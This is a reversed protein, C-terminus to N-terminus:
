GSVCSPNAAGPTGLDSSYADVAPCWATGLDNATADQQLPDLSLSLGASLAFGQNAAYAVADITLGDCQLSLDDAENSLSFVAVLDPAFGPSASRAVTRYGGPEIVFSTGIARAADGGDGILCGMLDLSEPGPNFLEFWEGQADSLAAPNTMIETIVVSGAVSPGPLAPVQPTGPVRGPPSPGFDTGSDLGDDAELGDSGDGPSGPGCGPLVPQWPATAADVRHALASVGLSGADPSSDELLPVQVCGSWGMWWVLVLWARANSM